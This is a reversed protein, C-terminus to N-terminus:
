LRYKPDADCVNELAKRFDKVLDHEGNNICWNVGYGFCMYVCNYYLEEPNSHNRIQGSKQAKIFLAIMVQALNNDIDFTHKNSKLNSIFLESYLDHGFTVSWTLIKEFGACISNWYNDEALLTLALEAYDTTVKNYYCTLLDDKSGIYKYFTPKSIECYSCIENISIEDFTKNKLLEFSKKIIEEKM